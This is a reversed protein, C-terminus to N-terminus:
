TVLDPTQDHSYLLLRYVDYACIARGPVWTFLINVAHNM